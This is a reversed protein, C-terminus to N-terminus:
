GHNRHARRGTSGLRDLFNERSQRLVAGTHYDRLVNGGDEGSGERIAQVFEAGNPHALGDIAVTHLGTQRQNGGPLKWM